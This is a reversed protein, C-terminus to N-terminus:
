KKHTIKEHSIYPFCAVSAGNDMFTINKKRKLTANIRKLVETSFHMGEKKAKTSLLLRKSFNKNTHWEVYQEELEEKGIRTDKFKLNVTVEEKFWKDFLPKAEKATAEYETKRRKAAANKRKERTEDTSQGTRFVRKKGTIAQCKKWDLLKSICTTKHAGSSIDIERKICEQRLAQVKFKSLRTENIYRLNYPLESSLEESSLEKEVAHSSPTGKTSQGSPTTKIKLNCYWYKGQNFIENKHGKGILYDRMQEMTAHKTTRPKIGKGKCYDQYSTWVLRQRIKDTDKHIHCLKNGVNSCPSIHKTTCKENYWGDLTAKRKQTLARSIGHREVQNCSSKKTPEREEGELSMFSLKLFPTETGAISIEATQLGNHSFRIIKGAKGKYTGQHVQVPSGITFRGISQPGKKSSPTGKTSEVSPTTKKKPIVPPPTKTLEEIAPMLLMRPIPKVGIKELMAGKVQCLIHMSDIGQEIFLEFLEDTLEPGLKLTSLWQFVEHEENQQTTKWVCKDDKIEYSDTPMGDNWCDICICATADTSSTASANVFFQHDNFWNLCAECEEPDQVKMCKMDKNHHVMVLAKEEVSMFECSRSWYKGKVAEFQYKIESVVKDSATRKVGIYVMMNSYTHVAAIKFYPALLKEAVKDASKCGRRCFTFIGVGRPLLHNYILKAELAPDKVIPGSTKIPAGCYDAYFVHCRPLVGSNLISLLTGQHRTLQFPTQMDPLEAVNVVHYDSNDGSNMAMRIGMMTPAELLVKVGENVYLDAIFRNVICKNRDTVKKSCNYM